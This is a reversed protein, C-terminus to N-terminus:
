ECYGTTTAKCIYHQKVYVGFGPTPDGQNDTILDNASQGWYNWAWALYSYGNADAYEMISKVFSGTSGATDNDGVEDIILPVTAAVASLMNVTSSGPATSTYSNFSYVHFSAAIQNLPDQPPHSPWGTLDNSYSLGGIMIVNTAGTARITNLMQQEGANTWNYATDIPTEIQTQSGGNLWYNWDNSGSTRDLFPENFLQFIVAPNDKFQNAISTWFTLDHDTDAMQNQGLPCYDGPATWQLDLIVYMGAANAQAVTTELTQKYNNGPDPNVTAGGNSDVCPTGLWSAPNLPLRVVNIHWAQLASWVPGWGGWPDSPDWGQIAVSELGSISVGRLQLTAGTADILHTGQVRVSMTSSGAAASIAVNASTQTGLSAGSADSLGVAFSKNGSGGSAIPVAFTKV